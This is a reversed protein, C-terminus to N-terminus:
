DRPAVNALYRGFFRKFKGPFSFPALRFPVRRGVLQFSNNVCIRNWLDCSLKEFTHEDDPPQLRLIM